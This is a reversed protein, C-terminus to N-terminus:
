KAIGRHLSAASLVLPKSVAAPAPSAAAVAGPSLPPLVRRRGRRGRRGRRTNAVSVVVLSLVLKVVVVGATHGGLVRVVAAEPLIVAAQRRGGRDLLRVHTM